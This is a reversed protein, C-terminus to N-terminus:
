PTMGPEARGDMTKSSEQSAPDIRPDDGIVDPVPARAHRKRLDAISVEAAAV